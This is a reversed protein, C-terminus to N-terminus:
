GRAMTSDPHAETAIKMTGLRADADGQVCIDL